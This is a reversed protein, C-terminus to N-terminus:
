IFEMKAQIIVGLIKFAKNELSFFPTIQALDPNIPKLYWDPGDMFIQRFQPLSKQNILVLVYDKNKPEKDPELVFITGESFRPELSSDGVSLSFAKDSIELDTKVYKSCVDEHPNDQNPWQLTQELTILPVKNWHDFNPFYQQTEHQNLPEFGLLQSTRVGFFEALKEVSSVTPNSDPITCMRKITTNSLGTNRSLQSINLDNEKMLKELVQVLSVRTKQALSVINNM